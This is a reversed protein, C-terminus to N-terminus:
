PHASRSPGCISTMERLTFNGRLILPERGNGATGHLVRAVDRGGSHEYVTRASVACVHINEEDPSLINLQDQEIAILADYAASQTDKSWYSVRDLLDALDRKKM